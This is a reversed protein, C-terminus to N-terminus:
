NLRNIESAALYIELQKGNM